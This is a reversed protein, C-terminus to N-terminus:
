PKAKSITFAMARNEPLGNFIIDQARILEPARRGEASYTTCFDRGEDETNADHVRYQFSCVLPMRHEKCIDIIQAMLPNIKEDYVAELDYDVNEVPM